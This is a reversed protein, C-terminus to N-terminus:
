EYKIILWYTNLDESMEKETINPNHKKVKNIHEVLGIPNYTRFYWYTTNVTIAEKM